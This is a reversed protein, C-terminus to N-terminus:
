PNIKKPGSPAPENEPRGSAPPRSPAPNGQDIPIPGAPRPADPAPPIPPTPAPQDRPPANAPAPSGPSPPTTTSSELTFEQPPPLADPFVVNGIDMRALTPPPMIHDTDLTVAAAPGKTLLRLDAFNPDTMITPTLFVFLTTRQRRTVTDRFLLGALPIDGLLPVKVITSTDAELTLGGIVITCDRPVTVLSSLVNRQVPPPLTPTAEGTFSSQEVRVDLKVANESIQPTVELSTGARSPEGVSTFDQGSNDTRTVATPIENESLVSADENDDVLLQPTALIKSDTNSQLATIILPVSESRVIAATLAPLGTNVTKRGLIDEPPDSLGFNTNVGFQGFIGQVEVALRNNQNDTVAVIKADVFVQPRRSDLRQILKAFEPQLRQRAKVIVQNSKYDSIVTTEEDGVAGMGGQTSSGGSERGASDRGQNLGSSSRSNQREQSPRRNNSQRRSIDGGLLSGQNASGGQEGLLNGLIEVVDDSKAHKLKYFEMTVLDGQSLPQLDKALELIRTHQDPTGHYMFGGAEPYIVFGASNGQNNQPGQGAGQQQQQQQFQQQRSNALGVVGPEEGGSTSQYTTVDGLGERAGQYAIVEAARTGVPYFVSRMKNPVDVMALLTEVYRREEPRGRFWLSNSQANVLLQFTLNSSQAAVGGSPAGVQQQQNNGAKNQQQNQAQGTVPAQQNMEGILQLIRDRAVTASIHHVELTSYELQQRALVITDVLQRLKRIKGPADTVIIVGFEDSYVANTLGGITSVFSQLASPKIGKTDVVQTSAYEGNEPDMQPKIDDGTRTVTYVGFSGKVLTYGKAELLEVLFDLVRDGPVSVPAPLYIKENSLDDTYFVQIGQDKRILEVIQSLAVEDRLDVTFTQGSGQPPNAPAPRAPPTTVPPTAPTNQRALAPAGLAVSVGAVALLGAVHRRASQAAHPTM